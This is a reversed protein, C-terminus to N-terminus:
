SSLKDALVASDRAWNAEFRAREQPAARSLDGYRHRMERLAQCIAVASAASLVSVRGFLERTATNDSLV